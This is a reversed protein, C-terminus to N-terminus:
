SPQKKCDMATRHFGVKAACLQPTAGQTNLWGSHRTATICIATLRPRGVGHACTRLQDTQPHRTVYAFFQFAMPPSQRELQDLHESSNRRGVYLDLLM